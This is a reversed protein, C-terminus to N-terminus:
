EHAVVIMSYLKMSPVTFIVSEGSEQFDLPIPDDADPSFCTVSKVRGPFQRHLTVHFPDLKNKRDFNIFHAITECTVPRNLLEMVTTLPAETTISLGKPLAEVVAQYIERHNKPLVWQVPTMRQSRTLNASPEPEQNDLPTRSSRSDARIIEPIYVIRGKGETRAPLLPNSHRRERWQNYQGTNGAVVLSGGGRVYELLTEAQDNSVCEQGALIVAGYRGIRDLQEEFLLDFPIKYQILVQEMLTAPVYASNISYAMSPWNRLVAVDAVNDTGTYYRQNYERFFEMIPTFVNHAGSGFPAGVCGAVPKQYGFAMHVAARLEDRMSDECSINLRRAMKYSRIQSVLAGTFPDIRADYGGTDFALMDVHNAFLPHYVANTWYRNFSYVGKINLHVVVDPNLSKVYDHLDNTYNALSECRFRVWEQLVPDNLAALSDPQASSDWENVHIWDVEPLGFRRLVAEKTPYRKRLFDHFARICRPCRCSKPEAQLMVNDFSIEDAHLEEM